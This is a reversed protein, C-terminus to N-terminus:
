ALKGHEFNIHRLGYVILGMNEVVFSLLITGFKLSTWHGISELTSTSNRGGAEHSESPNACRLLGNVASGITFHVETLGLMGLMDTLGLKFELLKLWAAAAHHRQAKTVIAFNICNNDRPGPTRGIQFRRSSQACPQIVALTLEMYNPVSRAPV